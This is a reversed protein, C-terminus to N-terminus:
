DNRFILIENGNESTFLNGRDFLWLYFGNETQYEEYAEGGELPVIRFRDNYNIIMYDDLLGYNFFYDTEYVTAQQNSRDIVTIEDRNEDTLFAIYNESIQLLSVYDYRDTGVFDVTGNSDMEAIRYDEEDPIAVAYIGEYNDLHEYASTLYIEQDIKSIIGDRYEYVYIRGDEMVPFYIIDGDTEPTIEYNEGPVDEYSFITGLFVNQNLDYGAIRFGEGMMNDNWYLLGGCVGMDNVDVQYSADYQYLLENEGVSSDYQYIKTNMDATFVAQENIELVGVDPYVSYYVTDGNTWYSGVEGGTEVPLTIANTQLGDNKSRCGTSILLLVFAASLLVTKMKM